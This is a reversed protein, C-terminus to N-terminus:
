SGTADAVPELMRALRALTAQLESSGGDGELTERIFLRTDDDLLGASGAEELISDLIGGSTGAIREVRVLGAFGFRFSFSRRHEISLM